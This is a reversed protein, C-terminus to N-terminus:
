MVSILVGLFCLVLYVIGELLRILSEENHSIMYRPYVFYVLMLTVISQRLFFPKQRYKTNFDSVELCYEKELEDFLSSKRGISIPFTLLHHDKDFGKDFFTVTRVLVSKQNNRSKHPDFGDMWEVFPIM